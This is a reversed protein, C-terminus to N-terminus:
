YVRALSSGPYYFAIIESAKRGFRAQGEAGWQCLGVAHGFGRGDVFSFHTGLDLIRCHNSRIRHGGMALRFAYSNVEASRGARDIVRLATPRGDASAEKVEITEIDGLRDYQPFKRRFRDTVESKSISVPDWRYAQGAINCYTCRVGGALPPISPANLFNSVNQTMGGCASSFYTSFIKRGLPSAWTCVIGRTDAVAQLSNQTIGTLGKYVQSRETARVDYKLRRGQTQMEYLAYTRSAIAQARYTEIRFSPYLEAALVAALYSELGVVNIVDIATSAPSLGVTLEKVKLHAYGDYRRTIPKDRGSQLVVELTGPNQPVILVDGPDVALKGIQLRVPRRQDAAIATPRLRRGKALIKNGQRIEYPGAVGIKVRPASDVLLVRIVPESAARDGRAGSRSTIGLSSGPRQSCSSLAFLTVTLLGATVGRLFRAKSGQLHM